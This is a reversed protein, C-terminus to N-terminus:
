AERVVLDIDTNTFGYGAMLLRHKDSGLYAKLATDFAQHLGGNSKAFSFAGFAPKTGEGTTNAVVLDIAAVRAENARRAFVRNGIATSAFADIQGSLLAEISENQTALEVIREVPIGANLATQRQVTDKVVGLKATHNVALTEYNTLGKPNGAKIIFGDALAWVPHSFEVWRSREPTIFMATNVTWRGNVLGPLLDAFNVLRTEVQQVGISKLITLAVEVDCGSPQGDPGSLAFPPEDLYAFVVKEQWAVESGSLHDWKNDNSVNQPQIM